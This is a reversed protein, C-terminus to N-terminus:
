IKESLYSIKATEEVMDAIYFAEKVTRGVAVVGHGELLAAKIDHSSFTQAVLNALKDSGPPAFPISPVRGFGEEAWSTAMPLDKGLVAYATCHPSHTHIVANVDQRVSYIALHFPVEKSPVLGHDESQSSVEGEFNVTLFDDYSVDGLCLGSRKILILGLGPIRASINGGTGSVLGRRYLRKSVMTLEGLLDRWPSDRGEESYGAM